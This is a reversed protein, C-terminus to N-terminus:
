TIRQRVVRRRVYAASASTSRKGVKVSDISSVCEMSSSSSQMAIFHKRCRLCHTSAFWLALHSGGVKELPDCYNNCVGKCDCADDFCHCTTPRENAATTITEENEFNDQQDDEGSSDRLDIFHQRCRVCRTAACWTAWETHGIPVFPECTMDCDGKCVCDTNFCACVEAQVNNGSPSTMPHSTRSTRRYAHVAFFHYDTQGDAAANATNVICNLTDPATM